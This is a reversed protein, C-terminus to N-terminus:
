SYIVNLYINLYPNRISYPAISSICFYLYQKVKKVDKKNIYNILYLAILKYIISTDSFVGLNGFAYKSRTLFIRNFSRSCKILLPFGNINWYKEIGKYVSIYKGRVLIIRKNINM